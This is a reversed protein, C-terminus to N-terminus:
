LHSAFKQCMCGSLYSHWEESIFFTASPLTSPITDHFDLRRCISFLENTSCWCILSTLLFCKSAWTRVKVRNVKLDHKEFLFREVWFQAQSSSLLITSSLRGLIPYSSQSNSCTVTQQPKFFVFYIKEIWSFLIQGM